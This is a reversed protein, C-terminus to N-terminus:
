QLNENFNSEYEFQGPEFIEDSEIITIVLLAPMKLHAARGCATTTGWSWGSLM